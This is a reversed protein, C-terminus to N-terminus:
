SVLTEYEASRLFLDLGIRGSSGLYTIDGRLDHQELSDSDERYAYSVSLDVPGVAYGAALAASTADFGSGDAEATLRGARVEAWGSGFLFGLLGQLNRSNEQDGDVSLAAYGTTNPDDEGFAVATSALLSLSVAVYRFKTTM